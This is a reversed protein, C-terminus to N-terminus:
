AVAQRLDSLHCALKETLAILTLTPNVAAGNPMVANSCVYLNDTDHVRLNEDVVGHSADKSMRCTSTAHDARIDSYMKDYPDKCGAEELIEKLKVIAWQIALKTKNTIEFHVKTRPIGTASSSGNAIEIRNEYESFVEVFGRLEFPMQKRMENRVKDLTKGAKIEEELQVYNRRGDRM